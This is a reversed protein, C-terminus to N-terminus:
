SGYLQQISQNLFNPLIHAYTWRIKDPDDLHELMATWKDAGHNKLVTEKIDDKLLYLRMGEADVEPHFQTGIMYPNFRMAMIARELPIHAREKEICLIQAGLMEIRTYDPQTIQYYRSDVVYFPDALGEFCPESAAQEFMHVPFVGFAMSKRKSLTAVKFYRCALQFSHCIFFVYKKHKQQEDLNHAVLQDILQFYPIEWTNNEDALPSGPGGSSIYIDFDLDPIEQKQRVDFITWKIDVSSSTQFHKLIDQICRMGENETGDYLDLVAIKILRLM